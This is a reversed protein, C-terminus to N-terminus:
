GAMAIASDLIDLARGLESDTIVLPPSLTLTHGRSTKLNLGLDFARARISEAGAPDPLGTAPDAIDVGALLGRGRPRVLGPHRAAMVRLGGLLRSGMAAARGVLDEAEITELVALAARATVPNKEHTYHGISWPQAVDLGARAVVAAIPLVAGGLAKGLVTIDPVVGEHESAFLRGTKGLGTPIEDFILLTGTEDCARRIEAWFGPPPILPVARMPEAIVAAIDGERRLIDTVARACAMACRDLPPTGDASRHNYPCAGCDYQAVHEAGTPLPGTARHRWVPDGGVAAAGFGAGHFAGWFSVTKWRGTAARALRLATEVADSGSPLFLARAPQMPALGTLREALEAAPECAFRRPAFTLRDLQDRIAALVRPHGYGLHHASNGHCDILRRGAEDEIWVGQARVIGRACPTSQDQGLFVAADRAVLGTPGPPTHSPM